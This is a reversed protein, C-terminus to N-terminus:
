AEGPGPPRNALTHLVRPWSINEGDSNARIADAVHAVTFNPKLGGPVAQAYALILAHAAAVGSSKYAAHLAAINM